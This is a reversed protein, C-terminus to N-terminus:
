VQFLNYTKLNLEKCWHRIYEMDAEPNRLLSIIDRKHQESELQQIWRLKSIVLDELTVIYTNIGFVNISKRRTFKSIEFSENSRIILDIKYSSHLHIINFMGKRKVEEYISQKNFYYNGNLAEIFDAVDSEFLEVIVDIDRTARPITYVNCAISGTILYNINLRSLIGSIESLLKELEM